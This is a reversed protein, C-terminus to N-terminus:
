NELIRMEGDPEIRVIDDRESLIRLGNATVKAVIISMNNMESVISIGEGELEPRAAGDKLTIIVQELHAPDDKRAEFQKCIDESINMM